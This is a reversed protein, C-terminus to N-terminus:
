KSINKQNISEKFIKITADITQSFGETYFFWKVPLPNKKFMAILAGLEQIPQIHLIYESNPLLVVLCAIRDGNTDICTWPKSFDIKSAM